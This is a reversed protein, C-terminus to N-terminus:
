PTWSGVNRLLVQMTKAFTDIISLTHLNIVEQTMMSQKEHVKDKKENHTCHIHKVEIPQHIFRQAIQHSRNGATRARWVVVDGNPAHIKGKGHKSGEVVYVILDADGILVEGGVLVSNRNEVEM